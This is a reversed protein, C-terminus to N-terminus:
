QLLSDGTATVLFPERPSGRIEFRLLGLDGSQAFTGNVTARVSPDEIVFDPGDYLLKGRGTEPDYGDVFHDRVFLDFQYGPEVADKSRVEEIRYLRSSGDAPPNSVKEWSVDITWNYGWEYNFGSIGNYFNGFEPRDETNRVLLCMTPGIAQCNGRHPAVLFTENVRSDCAALVTVFTSLLVVEAIRM